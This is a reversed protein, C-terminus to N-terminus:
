LRNFIAEYNNGGVPVVLMSFEGLAAHRVIYTDQKLAGDKPGLFTLSFCEKANKNSRGVRRNRVEILRVTESTSSNSLLFDSNLTRKFAAMDLASSGTPALLGGCGTISNASAKLGVGATLAVVTGMKM